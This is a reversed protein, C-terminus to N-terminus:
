CNTPKFEKLKAALLNKASLILQERAKREELKKLNGTGALMRTRRRNKLWIEKLTQNLLMATECHTFNNMKKIILGINTFYPKPTIM